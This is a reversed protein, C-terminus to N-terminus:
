AVVQAHEQHVRQAGAGLLAGHGAGGPEQGVVGEPVARLDDDGAGLAVVGHLVILLEKLVNLVHISVVHPLISFM